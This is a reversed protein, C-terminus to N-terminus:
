QQRPGRRHRRGGNWGQRQEGECQYSSAPPADRSAPPVGAPTTSTANPRHVGRGTPAPFPISPPVSTSWAPPSEGEAGGSALLASRVPGNRVDSKTASTGATRTPTTGTRRDQVPHSLVLPLSPAAGASNGKTGTARTLGGARTMTTARTSTLGPPVTPLPFPLTGAAIPAPRRRM